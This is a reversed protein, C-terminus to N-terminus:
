TVPEDWVMVREWLLQMAEPELGSQGRLPDDLAIIVFIIVGLFFSTVGGLVLHPVPRMKLMVLLTINIIAGVAVAYWLVEPIRTIVGAMRDQRAKSFDHFASVVERHLIQESVNRPRYEVLLQRMADARNAGGNLVEGRRHAPWDKHITYLVYDRMMEKMDSRLPEPYSNMDAYLTSLAAAEQFIAHEVKESNQYAAVALLGMLLGYFLSFVSTAYSITDNVNPEGGVLLRLFPKIFIIGAWTVGVTVAGSWFALDELSMDYVFEPM